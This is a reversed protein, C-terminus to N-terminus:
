PTFYMPNPVKYTHKAYGGALDSKQDGVNALIKYGARTLKKRTGSKYPVLSANHDDAPRLYLKYKGTYGRSKLQSVTIARLPESRGTIFFVAVRRRHALKYLSRTQSIATVDPQVACVVAIMFNRKKACAYLSLSTDDIDLVIAPKGRHRGKHGDLWKGVYTKARRIARTTDTRWEGSDHYAVIAEPTAPAKPESASSLGTLATAGAIALCSLVLTVARSSPV